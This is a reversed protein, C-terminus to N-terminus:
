PPKGDLRAKVKALVEGLAAKRGPDAQGAILTELALAHARDLAEDAPVVVDPKVGVGEWNTKSIPNIARGTPMWIKFHEDIRLFDGPHAGGGSTEGVVTARKLNQLNYAFEEAASFTEGSTLIWVPKDPGFRRGPVWAQTWFQETVDGKRWYLDNLHVRDAGFLYSTVLAVMNPDGGGNHRLDIVLADTNAIFSLAAAAAEGGQDVPAFGTLDLYGVNGPLREAREFGHNIRTLFAAFRRKEEDGLQRDPSAVPIPEANFEVSLHKDHSVARLDETLRAAFARSSATADYSRKRDRERIAAAMKKGVEPFVYETPLLEIVTAIVRRRAEPDLPRDDPPPEGALAWPSSGVNAFLLAILPGISRRCRM